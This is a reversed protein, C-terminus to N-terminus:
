CFLRIYVNNENFSNPANCPKTEGRCKLSKALVILTKSELYM